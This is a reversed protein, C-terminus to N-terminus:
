NSKPTLRGQAPGAYKRLTDRAVGTVSTIRSHSLGSHKALEIAVARRGASGVHEISLAISELVADEPSLHELIMNRRLQMVSREVEALSTGKFTTALLPVFQTLAESASGLFRRIANETLGQDDFEFRLIRDFRRWVAPDLLEAHNTAALLLGTDPWADIEQLIAAVLRKSEGVDSDDSRRKALSDVEDLLLVANNAKAYEMVGRVNAATRGFLSSVVSTLDLVLLPTGLQHAIWRASLTKGVGPPGVLLASRTPSVSHAALEARQLREKVIDSVQKALTPPLIPGAIGKLDDFVRVLRMKEPELADGQQFGPSSDRLASGLAGKARTARLAQDFRAALQPRTERYRRVLRALFLRADDPSDQVALRALSAFDEELNDSEDAPGPAPAMERSIPM